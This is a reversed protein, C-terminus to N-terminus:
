PNPDCPDGFGDGDSDLQDLSFGGGLDLSLELDTVPQGGEDLFRASYGWGGGQDYIKLLLFQWDGSLSVETQFQDNNVGQCSSVELVEAGSWWARVGDDAGLSLTATQAEAARVHIGVYAERPASITGYLSGLNVRGSSNLLLEWTADGAGDGLAPLLDADATGDVLDDETPTCRDPGTGNALPAVVMWTLVFGDRDPAFGSDPGNPVTRCNDEADPVSDDDDDRDCGDPVGDGDTDPEDALPLDEAERDLIDMELTYAPVPGDAVVCLATGPADLARAGQDRVPDVVPCGTDDATGTAVVVGTHDRLELRAATTCGATLQAAIGECNDVPVAFCDEDGAPLGGRIPGGDWPNPAAWGDNPEAELAGEELTCDPLCGDGGYANGDDCAESSDQV